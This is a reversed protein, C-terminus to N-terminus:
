KQLYLYQWIMSPMTVISRPITTKKKAASKGSLFRNRVWACVLSMKFRTSSSRPSETGSSGVKLFTILCKASQFSQTYPISGWKEGMHKQSELQNRYTQHEHGLRRHTIEGMERNWRSM